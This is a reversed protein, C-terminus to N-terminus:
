SVAPSFERTYFPKMNARAAYVAATYSGSRFRHHTVSSKRSYNNEM